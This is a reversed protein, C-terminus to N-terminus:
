SEPRPHRWRAADWDPDIGARAKKWSRYIRGFGARMQAPDFADAETFVDDVTGFLELLHPTVALLAAV